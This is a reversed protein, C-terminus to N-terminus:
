SANSAAILDRIIDADIGDQIQKSMEAILKDNWSPMPEKSWLVIVDNGAVGIVM